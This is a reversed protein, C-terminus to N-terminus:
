WGMVDEIKKKIDPAEMFAEGILVAAVGLIKLFLVDQYSKIGSEVVVIKEKPILPFLRETTKFDVELTHLDRNNIGILPADLNLVKKLEKETHVEVLCQMKLDSAIQLFESIRDKSLLDAILLIADAGFLRSEYIQYPELIFDKRLIPAEILNRVESMYSLSGAFYDEETLVSVAQVGTEQYAKAIELHNFDQRITGRSPSQKKIEAILSITRPKHIAEMLSKTPALTALRAKLDEEPFQQRTLAVREKKKTVIEKLTDTKKM